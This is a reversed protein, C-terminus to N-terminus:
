GEVVGALRGRWGRCVCRKFASSGRLTPKMGLMAHVVLPTHALGPCNCKGRWLGVLSQTCRQWFHWV